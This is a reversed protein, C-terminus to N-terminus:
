GVLGRGTTVDIKGTVAATILAERCEALLSIESELLSELRIAKDQVNYVQAVVQRQLPLDIAPIPWEKIEDIRLNAMSQSTGHSASRCLNRIRPGRAALGVFGPGMCDRLRVRFIKDCLLLRSHDADVVVVAGVLAPTNARTILVDGRNIKYRSEPAISEPLRKNERPCWSGARVASVKLVGWEGDVAPVNDCQPRFGQEVDLM